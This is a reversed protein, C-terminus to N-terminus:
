VLYMERFNSANQWNDAGGAWVLQAIREGESDATNVALDFGIKAPTKGDACFASFPVRARLRYGSDTQEATVDIALEGKANYFAPSSGPTGPYLTIQHVGDEYRPLGQKAPPRGDLFLEISDVLKGKHEEERSPVLFDDKVDALLLLAEDDYSLKFRAGHKDATEKDKSFADQTAAIEQWGEGDWSEQLGKELFAFECTKDVHESRDAYSVDMGFGLHGSGAAYQGTVTKSKRGFAPVAGFDVGPSDFTVGDTGALTVSLTNEQESLSNAKLKVAFTGDPTAQEMATEVAVTGALPDLLTVVERMRAPIDINQPCKEVCKKCNICESAKV